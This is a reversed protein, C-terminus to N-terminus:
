LQMFRNRFILALTSFKSHGLCWAQGAVCKMYNIGELLGMLYM